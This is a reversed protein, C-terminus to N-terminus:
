LDSPLLEFGRQRSAEVFHHDFGFAHRCGLEEMVVLSACDVVGWTKDRYALFLQLAREEVSVPVALLEVAAHDTLLDWLDIAANFGVRSKVISLAEYATWTTTVLRVRAAICEDFMERAIAHHADRQNSAALWASADVFV